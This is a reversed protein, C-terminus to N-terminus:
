SRGRELRRDGKRRGGVDSSLIPRGNLAKGVDHTQLKPNGFLNGALLEDLAEMLDSSYADDRRRMSRVCDWFTQAEYVGYGAGM